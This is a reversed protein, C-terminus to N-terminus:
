PRRGVAALAADAQIVQPQNYSAAGEVRWEGGADPTPLGLYEPNVIRVHDATDHDQYRGALVDKRFCPTAQCIACKVIADSTMTTESM